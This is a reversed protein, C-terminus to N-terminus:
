PLKEIKNKVKKYEQAAKNLEEIAKPFLDDLERVTTNLLERPQDLRVRLESLSTELNSAETCYGGILGTRSLSAGIKMIENDIEKITETQRIRKVM